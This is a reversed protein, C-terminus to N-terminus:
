WGRAPSLRLDGLEQAAQEREAQGVGYLTESQASTRPIRASQAVAVALAAALAAPRAAREAGPRARWWVALCRVTFPLGHGPLEAHWLSAAVPDLQVGPAPAGEHLRRAIPAADGRRPPLALPHPAPMLEGVVLKGAHVSWLLAYPYIQEGARVSGMTISPGGAAAPWTEAIVAEPREGQALGIACGPGASGYLRYLARLPSEPACKHRPWREGGAVCQWFALALKGGAGIADGAAAVRGRASRGRAWRRRQARDRAPARSRTCARSERAPSPPQSPGQAAGRSSSQAPRPTAGSANEPMGGTLGAAAPPRLAGDPQAPAPNASSGAARVCARCGLEERTAVLPESAGCAPCRLAALEGSAAVFCLELPHAASGRRVNVSLLYAPVHILQLRFPQIEHQARHEEEIERRRRAREILTAQAQADLLRAREPSASTRRREISELAAEYYAEARALELERARQAGKALAAARARANAQLREHASTVALALDARLERRDRKPALLRAQDRALAVLRESPKLGNRADVWVEEQEQFRLSLSATYSVTAGVRLLPLYVAVPEAAAELRAHEVVALERAKGELLSRTPSRSGPWPLHVVGTDGAALLAGAARQAAPHGAILLAAGDERAVDPSATVIAEEPLEAERQLREPLVLLAHDGREECLAGEREAYDLWLSLAPEDRLAPV